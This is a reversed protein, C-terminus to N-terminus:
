FRRVQKGLFNCIDHPLCSSLDPGPTLCPQLPQAIEVTRGDRNELVADNNNANASKSCSPRTLLEDEKKFVQVFSLISGSQQLKQKKNASM